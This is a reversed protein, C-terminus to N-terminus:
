RAAVTAATNNTDSSKTDSRSLMALPREALLFKQVRGTATVPLEEVQLELIQVTTRPVWTPRRAELATRRGTVSTPAVSTPTVPPATAFPDASPTSTM